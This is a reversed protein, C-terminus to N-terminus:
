STATVSQCDVRLATIGSGEAWALAVSWFALNDPCVYEENRHDAEPANNGIWAAKGNECILRVARIGNETESDEDDVYVVQMGIAVGPTVNNGGLNACESNKSPLADRGYKENDNDGLFDGAVGNQCAIALKDLTGLSDTKVKLNRVPELGTCNFGGVLEGNESGMYGSTATELTAASSQSAIAPVGVAIAGSLLAALVGFKLSDRKRPKMTSKRQPSPKLLRHSSHFPVGGWSSMYGFVLRSFTSGGIPKLLTPDEATKPPEGDRPQDAVAADLVSSAM